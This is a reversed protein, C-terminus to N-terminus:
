VPEFEAKSVPLPATGIALQSATCKLRDALLHLQKVKSLQQKGDDSHLREKLWAYGQFVCVSDTDANVELVHMHTHIHTNVKM